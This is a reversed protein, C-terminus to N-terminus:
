KRSILVVFVVEALQNTAYLLLQIPVYRFSFREAVEQQVPSGEVINLFAESGFNRVPPCKRIIQRTQLKDSTPQRNM